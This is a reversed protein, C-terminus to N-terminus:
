FNEVINYMIQGFGSRARLWRRKNNLGANEADDNHCKKKVLLPFDNQGSSQQGM